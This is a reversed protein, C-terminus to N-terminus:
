ERPMPAGGTEMGEVSQMVMKCTRPANTVNNCLIGLGALSAPLQQSRM